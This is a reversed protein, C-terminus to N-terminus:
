CKAEGTPMDYFVKPAGCDPRNLFRVTEQAIRKATGGGDYPSKTGAAKQRFEPSLATSLARRIEETSDGCSVVNECLIRGAQRTGINVVPVRLTPAEVVGSSSNGVVAACYKMASLYRLLGMSTFAIMRKPDRKCLEDIAENIARGGADANAKTFIIRCSTELLAKALADFCARADNGSATEPHYTVLLYPEALSFEISKELKEKSMLSLKRLNEDGLGGVNFVRDPSEGMQIVRKAYVECSPFHLAAMKTLSHRIWEDVAGYTVDGGSIHIVPICLMAAASGAAFIEYRDGLVLVADLKTKSFYDTFREMALATTKAMAERSDTGYELIPIRVDIPAGDREVEHVTMGFAESLHAGTVAVKVCLEEREQMARCVGRLLGWEARTGTVICVTKREM